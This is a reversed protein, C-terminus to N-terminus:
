DLRKGNGYISVTEIIKEDLEKILDNTDSNSMNNMIRRYERKIRSPTKVDNFECKKMKDIVYDFGKTEIVDLIMAKNFDTKTKINMNNQQIKPIKKINFYYNKWKILMNYFFAEDHLEELKITRGFEQKIRKKFRLEYRLSQGTLKKLNEPINCKDMEQLKNYFILQKLSNTYYLTGSWFNKKFYNLEDFEDLYYNIKYKMIFNTAFHIEHVKSKNLNVKIFDSLNEIVLKTDRLTLTSLNHGYFYKPLSGNLIIGSPCEIIKLNNLRWFHSEAGTKENKITKEYELNNFNLKQNTELYTRVSDYM